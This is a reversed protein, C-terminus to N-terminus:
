LWASNYFCKGCVQHRYRRGELHQKRLDKLCNATRIEQLTQKNIDGIVLRRLGIDNCCPAIRGDCYIFYLGWLQDCPVLWHNREYMKGVKGIENIDKKGVRDRLDATIVQDVGKQRQWFKVFNKLDGKNANLKVASIGVILDNLKYKEKLRLFDTINKYTVDRKLGVMIKEYVEPAYGCVSFNIKRLGGLEFFAEAKKADLLYGNTYFGYSMNYRRLYSIREFLYPDMLPEGGVSLDVSTIHNANCDDVIKKFLEMSMVGSMQQYGHYCMICRANCSLTTEIYVNMEKDPYLRAYKNAKKIAYIQYLKNNLLLSFITKLTNILSPHRLTYLIIKQRFTNPRM